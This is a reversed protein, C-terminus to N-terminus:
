SSELDTKPNVQRDLNSKKHIALAFFQLFFFFTWSQYFFEDHSQSIPLSLKDLSFM